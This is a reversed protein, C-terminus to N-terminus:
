GLRVLIRRRRSTRRAALGAALGAFAALVVAAAAVAPLPPRDAALWAVGVLAAGIGAGTIMVGIVGIVRRQGRRLHRLFSEAYALAFLLVGVVLLGPLTLFPQQVNRVGFRYAAVEAESDLLRLDAAVTSAATFRAGGLNLRASRAGDQEGQVEGRATVGLPVDWLSLDFEVADAPPATSGLTVTFADTLDIAPLEGTAPDVGAVELVGPAPADDWELTPGAFAVGVALLLAALAVLLYLVPFPPPTIAEQIPILDRVDFDGAEGGQVHQSVAPRVPTATVSGDLPPQPPPGGAVTAQAGGVARDQRTPPARDSVAPPPLFGDSPRTTSAIIPGTAHVPLDALDLWGPGWTATAAEGLAVGFAEATEYRDETDRAIATMVAEAIPASVRPAAETIPTPDEHVHRYVIALPGGDESFPLQGSLLEYLMVGSAYVDAAPGVSQGEAQEPAMYAPTGLVDGARTAMAQSGTLVKAIGFDAVKIVGEDAFLLNDPKIDRHLIGHQHAHELGTCTALLVACTAQPTLGQGVFRAWLTGGTLKEMVLLCLDGDEVYDFIPVVHPHTLTALVQAEALFRSRVEPDASFAAPLQKIAVERGLRRHRGNLVVGFAGRGLEGGIEYNPLAKALQDREAPTM